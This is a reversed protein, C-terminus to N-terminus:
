RRKGRPAIVDVRNEDVRLTQFQASSPEAEASWITSLDIVRVVSIRNPKEGVVALLPDESGWTAIVRNEGLRMTTTDPENLLM